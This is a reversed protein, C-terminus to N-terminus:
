GVRVASIRGYATMSNVAFTAQAVLYYTTNATITVRVAPVSLSPGYAALSGALVQFASYTDGYDGGTFANTTTSIGGLYQTATTAANPIFIMLCSIDWIGPTLAISTLTLAAGTSLSSPSGSAVAASIREGIFSASPAQFRGGKLLGGTQATINILASSGNFSIGSYTITGAGTIANTASSTITTSSIDLTANLSVSIATSSGSTVTSGDIGNVGTGGVTLTAGYALDFFSNHATFSQSNGSTTIPSSFYTNKFFCGSDNSATSVATSNSGNYISCHEFEILGHNVSFVTGSSGVSGRCYLCWIQSGTSSTTSHIMSATGSSSFYCNNLYIISAASGTIEVFYDGHTILQISSITSTGATTMTIKGTISPMSLVGPGSWGVINVGAPLTFDETLSDHLFITTGSQAAAVATTLTKFDGNGSSDVHFGNAVSYNRYGM